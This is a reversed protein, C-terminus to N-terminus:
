AMIGLVMAGGWALARVYCATGFYKLEAEAEPIDRVEGEDKKLSIMRAQLRRVSQPLVFLFSLPLNSFSIMGAVILQGRTSLGLTKGPSFFASPPLLYAALWFPICSLPIGLKAIPLGKEFWENWFQVKRRPSLNSALLVPMLTSSTNISFGAMVGAAVIGTIRSAVIVPASTFM